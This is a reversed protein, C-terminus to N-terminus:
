PYAPAFYLFNVFWASASCNAPTRNSDEVRGDKIEAEVLPNDDGVISFGEGDDNGGFFVTSPTSPRVIQGITAGFSITGYLFLGEAEVRLVRGGITKFRISFSDAQLM